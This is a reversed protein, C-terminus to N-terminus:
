TDRHTYSASHPTLYIKDSAKKKVKHIECKQQDSHHNRKFLDGDLDCPYVFHRTFLLAKFSIGKCCLVCELIDFHLSNYHIDSSIYNETDNIHKFALSFICVSILVHCFAFSHFFTRYIAFYLLFWFYCLLLTFKWFSSHLYSLIM